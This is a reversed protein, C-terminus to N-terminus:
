TVLNDGVFICYGFTLRRDNLSGIWDADTFTKKIPPWAKSFLLGKGSASKLYRLIRFVAELHSERPDHMYQSVLSVAYAIDPRTHSLYILRGVLRQYRELDISDGVEAQLRHNAEIPSDAPKCGLMGTEELLDLIYKKQSIFIEKDSRTVETRLFYRLKSLDKIEFEQALLRKLHAIKEKDDRTVVIDDVYIILLTIKDKCYKMFLTHNANNQHYGFFIMAKSFRDFWARPSRKLGYLSKKLRYIKEKTKKDDFGPPIEMYMEKEVDGHLFTNKVDFQRLDWELNAACCLLIRITNMKAIPAFTEQYDVGYTQTFNKAVLRIKYREISGDATHKVTFM